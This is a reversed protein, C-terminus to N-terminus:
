QWAIDDVYIVASGSTFINGQFTFGLIDPNAAAYSPSVSTSIFKWKNLDSQTLPIQANGFPCDAGDKRCGQLGISLYSPQASDLGSAAVHVWAGITRNAIPLRISAAGCIPLDLNVLGGGSRVDLELAHTGGHVPTTVIGMSVLAFTSGLDTRLYLGQTTSDEFDYTSRSCVPTTGTCKTFNTNCTWGCTSNSCTATGFPYFSESVALMPYQCLTGCTGCNKIDNTLTSCVRVCATEGASCTLCANNTANCGNPCAIRSPQICDGQSCTSAAVAGSVNCSPLNGCSM